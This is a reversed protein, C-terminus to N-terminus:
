SSCFGAHVRVFGDVFGQVSSERIMFPLLQHAVVGRELLQLLMEAHVRQETYCQVFMVSRRCEAIGNFGAYFCRGHIIEHAANLRCRNAAATLAAPDGAQRVPGRSGCRDEDTQETARKGPRIYKQPKIKAGGHGLAGALVDDQVAM